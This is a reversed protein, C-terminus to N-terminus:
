PVHQAAVHREDPGPRRELVFNLLVLGPMSAPDKFGLRSQGPQPLHAAAATRREVFHHSEVKAVGAAIRDPGIDLDKQRRRAGHNGAFAGASEHAGSPGMPAARQTEWMSGDPARTLRVMRFLRITSHG